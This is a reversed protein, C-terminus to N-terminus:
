GLDIVRKLCRQGHPPNLCFKSKAGCITVLNFRHQFLYFSIFSFSMIWVCAVVKWVTVWVYFLRYDNDRCHLSITWPSRYSLWDQFTDPLQERFCSTVMFDPAASIGVVSSISNSPTVNSLFKVNSTCIEVMHLFTLPWLLARRLSLFTNGDFVLSVTYRYNM